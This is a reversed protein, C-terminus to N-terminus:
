AGNKLAIRYTTENLAGFRNREIGQCMKRVMLRGRGRSSFDRNRLELELEPDGAAVPMSPEPTGWDWVTLEAYKGNERLRFCAQEGARDRLDYGHDYLNMMKEEFVLEVEMTVEPDWGQVSCWFEIEQAEQDIASADMPLSKVLVEPNKLHSGFILETVDDAFVRYGHAECALQFKYPATIVSHKERAEALLEHQLDSRLSDALPEHEGLDRYVDFVGDSFAVCLMTETLQTRVVDNETYVTEPVLGIPLGGRHEPNIDGLSLDLPDVVHLDPAGCSIWDVTREAPRHMCILATMYTFTGLNDTFFRQILNAVSAPTAGALNRVTPLQKLFSQVAMMSLAASTGHGQIDGLVYLNGGDPLPMVELLDGSVFDKPKWWYTYFDTDTIRVRPPLMSRQLHAGLTMSEMVERDKAKIFEEVRRSDVISQVRKLLMNPNISKPLYFSYSDEMIRKLFGSGEEPDLATMFFIPMSEDMGRVIDRFVFGDMDGMMIDTIIAKYQKHGGDNLLVVAEPISAVCVATYGIQRLKANLTMRILREDDIVLIKTKEKPSAMVSRRTINDAAKRHAGPFVAAGRLPSDGM